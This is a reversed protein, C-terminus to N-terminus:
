GDLHERYLRLLEDGRQLNALHAAGDLVEFRAGPIAAAITEGHEPPTSPDQAASIVLTPAGVLGLEPILNMHEIANCAAIYGDAPTATIMAELEPRLDAAADTVWNRAVAPAVAPMGGDRVAQARDQWIQPPGLMASTCTPIIKAVREPANIALWMATMGGLSIGAVHARSVELHDLLDVVDRGFDGLEYPGPPVGSEGHGRADFRILTFDSALAEAQGDWMRLNSGLSNALVLPPGDGSVVHHPIV